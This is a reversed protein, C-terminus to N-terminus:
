GENLMWQHIIKEVRRCQRKKNVIQEPVTL